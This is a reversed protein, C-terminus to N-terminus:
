TSHIGEPKQTTIVTEDPLISVLVTTTEISSETTTSSTELLFISLIFQMPEISQLQWKTMCVFQYLHKSNCSISFFEFLIKFYRRTGMRVLM